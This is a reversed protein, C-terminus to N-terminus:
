YRLQDKKKLYKKKKIKVSAVFLLFFYPKKYSTYYKVNKLNEINAVFLVIYKKWRKIKQFLNLIIIDNKEYYYPSFSNTYDLLSKGKLIFDIFWICFQGSM